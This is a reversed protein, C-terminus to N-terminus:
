SALFLSCIQKLFKEVRQSQINQEILCGIL